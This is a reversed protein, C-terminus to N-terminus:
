PMVGRVVPPRGVLPVSRNIIDADRDARARRVRDGVGEVKGQDGADGRSRPLGPDLAPGATPQTCM